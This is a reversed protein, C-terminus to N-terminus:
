ASGRTAALFDTRAADFARILERRESRVRALLRRHRFALLPLRLLARQREFWPLYVLTVAGLAAATALALVIRTLGWGSSHLLVGIGGYTLPLIVMGAGIRVSSIRAPHPDVRRAIQECAECPLWHLVRGALAPVFALIAGGARALTRYGPEAPADLRRLAEDELHLAELKRRYATILRWVQVMRDPDHRRFYEVCEAIRRELILEHRPDGRDTLEDLYLRELENVLDAVEPVPIHVILAELADEIAATLREVAHRRDPEHAAGYPELELPPGFSIVVESGFKTRDTLHLGVPLLRLRGRQGPREEHALALRAAGTKMVALRRDTESTGEPFILVVRGDDLLAHCADFTADNLHMLRPDDQRRYIPLAGALKFAFGILPSKFLAGMALFHIRRPLRTLLVLVDTFAAPHNAVVLVPGTAPFREADRVEIRRFYVRLGVDIGPRIVRYFLAEPIRRADM